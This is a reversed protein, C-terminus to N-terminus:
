ARRSISLFEINRPMSGPRPHKPPPIENPSPNQTKLSPLAESSEPSARDQLQLIPRDERANESESLVLPSHLWGRATQTRSASVHLSEPACEANDRNRIDPDTQRDERPSSLCPTEPYQKVHLMKIKPLTGRSVNQNEPGQEVFFRRPLVDLEVRVTESSEIRDAEPHIRKHARLHPFPKAQGDARGAWHAGSISGCPWRM